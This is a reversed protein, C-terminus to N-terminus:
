RLIAPRNRACIAKPPIPIPKPIEIPTSEAAVKAPSTEGKNENM